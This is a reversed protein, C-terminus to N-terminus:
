PHNGRPGYLDEGWFEAALEAEHEARMDAHYEQLETCGCYAVVRGDDIWTQEVDAMFRRGCDVCPVYAREESVDSWGDPMDLYGYHKM